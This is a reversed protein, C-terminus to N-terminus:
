LMYSDVDIWNDESSSTMWSRQGARKRGTCKALPTQKRNQRVELSHDGVPPRGPGASAGNNLSITGLSRNWQLLHEFINPANQLTASMGVTPLGQRWNGDGGSLGPELMAECGADDVTM